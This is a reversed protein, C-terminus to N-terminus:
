LGSKLDFLIYIHTNEIHMGPIFFLFWKGWMQNRNKEGEFFAGMELFVTLAKKWKIKSM